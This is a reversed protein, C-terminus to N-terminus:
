PEEQKGQLLGSGAALQTGGLRKSGSPRLLPDASHAFVADGFAPPRAGLGAMGMEQPRRELFALGAEGVRDHVTTAWTLV